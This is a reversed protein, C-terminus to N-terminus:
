VERIRINGMARDLKDRMQTYQVVLSQYPMNRWDEEAQTEEQLFRLQVLNENVMNRRLRIVARHLEEIHRLKQHDTIDTPNRIGDALILLSEPINASIYQIPDVETQDVGKHIVDFITRYDADPFDDEAVTKLGNSQLERDLRYILEPNTILSGLIYKELPECVSVKALGSDAPHDKVNGEPVRPRKRSGPQIKRITALAREDVKLIRALQQRYSDREIPNAIDEILPLVQAAIESKVRPDEMNKGIVLTDIVHTIIHKSGAILEAWEEPNRNVVDDPDLGDPLTAVRIDAELRAEQHMLGRVDFVRDTAHDLAQRATDLGRLTANVGATDPDLALVIRRTLGKVLHLQDETLATGMPSVVNTFGAQHLALVDLYGEVIVVQNQTRIAKRAASLGYLLRGKDFIMTQPSNLFKPVDEPNLIRGGFGAMKGDPTRIPFMIRHRFRDFVQGSDRRSELGADVLEEVSCGKNRFYNLLADNSNSAYGIGFADLVEDQLNRQHLYELAIQGDPTNIMQHRYFTVADELLKRQREGAEDAAQREPTITQLKIGAREALYKLAQPFDWGEKKMVFRFIDGGENCQGFCRWTGTDSFVVFAPTKTNPHFPCFGSYNKGSKKLKVTESVLDVLDLRSKIDDVVTM